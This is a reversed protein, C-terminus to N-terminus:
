SKQKRKRGRAFTTALLVVVGLFVCADAVNFVEFIPLPRLVIFDIVYGYRLRDVVNGVAGGVIAAFAVRPGTASAMLNGFAFGFAVLVLMSIIVFVWPRASFLGYAMRMNHVREWSLLGPVVDIREGLSLKTMVLHKTSQDAALAFAAVLWFVRM